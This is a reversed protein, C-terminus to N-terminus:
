EKALGIAGLIEKYETYQAEWYRATDAGNLYRGVWFEHALAKNWEDAESLKACTGEWYAVQAPAIGRPGLLGRWSSFDGRIGQEPWTPIQALDGGFRKASSVALIHTKGTRLHALANPTSSSVVDIHGGLLAVMSDGSSKFAVIKLKKIDVGAEKLPKAIATHIHNGVASAIGISLSSPDKKLRAILDKGTKIPSDARVSVAMFEEFMLCLPTFDSYTLKTIGHIKNTLLNPAQVLVYHADGTQQSMYAWSVTNGGGPKNVVVVNDLLGQNKWVRQVLRASIDVAGGAAVGVVLEVTKVPKWAVQAFAGSSAVAVGMGVLFKLFAKM